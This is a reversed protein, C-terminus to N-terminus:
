DPADPGARDPAPPRPHPRDPPREAAPAPKSSRDPAEIPRVGDGDALGARELVESRVQEWARKLGMALQEWPALTQSVAGTEAAKAAVTAPEDAAEDSPGDDSHVLGQGAAGPGTGPLFNALLIVGGENTAGAEFEGPLI